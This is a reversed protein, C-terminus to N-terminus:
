GGRYEVEEIIRFWDERPLSNGEAYVPYPRDQSENKPTDSQKEQVVWIVNAPNYILDRELGDPFKRQDFPDIIVAFISIIVLLRFRIFLVARFISSRPLLLMHTIVVSYRLMEEVYYVAIV